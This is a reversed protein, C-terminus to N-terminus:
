AREQTAPAKPYTGTQKEKKGSTNSKYREPSTKTYHKMVCIHHGLPNRDRTPIVSGYTTHMDGDQGINDTLFELGDNNPVAVSWTEGKWNMSPDYASTPEKPYEDWGMKFANHLDNILQDYRNQNLSSIFAIETYAENAETNITDVKQYDASPPDM